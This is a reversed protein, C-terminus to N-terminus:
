ILKRVRLESRIKALLEDGIEDLTKIGLTKLITKPALMDFAPGPKPLALKEFLSDVLALPDMEEVTVQQRQVM